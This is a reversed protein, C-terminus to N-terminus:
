DSEKVFENKVGNGLIWGVLSSAEVKEAQLLDLTPVASRKWEFMKSM